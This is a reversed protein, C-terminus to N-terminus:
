GQFSLRRMIRPLLSRHLVILFANQLPQTSISAGLPSPPAHISPAASQHTTPATSARELSCSLIPCIAKSPLQCPKSSHAEQLWFRLMWLSSTAAVADAAAGPVEQHPLHARLQLWCLLVQEMASKTVQWPSSYRSKFKSSALNM